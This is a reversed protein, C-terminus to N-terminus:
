HKSAFAEKLKKYDPRGEPNPDLCRWICRLHVETFGKAQILPLYENKFDEWNTRDRNSGYVEDWKKNTGPAQVYVFSPFAKDDKTSRATMLQLLTIGAAFIDIKQNYFAVAKAPNRSKKIKMLMGQAIVANPYSQYKTSRLAIIGDTEPAKYGPTGSNPDISLQSEGEPIYSTAEIHTEIFATDFDSVLIDITGNDLLEIFCNDPKLDLHAFGHQHAGAVFEVFSGAMHKLIEPTFYENEKELKHSLTGLPMYRFLAGTVPKLVQDAFPPHAPPMSNGTSFSLLSNPIKYQKIQMEAIQQRRQAETCEGPFSLPERPRRLVAVTEGNKDYLRTVKNMGGSGVSKKDGFLSEQTKHDLVPMPDSTGYSKPDHAHEEILFKSSGDMEKVVIVSHQLYVGNKAKNVEERSIKMCEGPPLEEIANTLSVHANILRLVQEHTDKIEQIHAAQFENQRQQKIQNQIAKEEQFIKAQEQSIQNKLGKQEKKLNAVKSVLVQAEELQANHPNETGAYCENGHKIMENQDQLRKMIMQFKRVALDNIKSAEKPLEGGKLLIIVKEKIQIKENNNKYQIELDQLLQNKAISTTTTITKLIEPTTTEQLEAENQQPFSITAEVLVRSPVARSDAM